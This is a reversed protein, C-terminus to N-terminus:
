YFVCPSSHTTGNWMIGKMGPIRSKYTDAPGIISKFIVKSVSYKCVNRFYNFSDTKPQIRTHM